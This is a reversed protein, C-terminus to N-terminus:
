YEEKLLTFPRVCESKFCLNLINPRSLGARSAPVARGPGPCGSGPGVRGLEPRDGLINSRSSILVVGVPPAPRSFIPNDGIVRLHLPRGMDWGGALTEARSPRRTPRLSVARKAKLPKRRTSM